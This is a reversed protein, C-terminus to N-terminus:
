RSYTWSSPETTQTDLRARLPWGNMHQGREITSLKSELWVFPKLLVSIKILCYLVHEPCVKKKRGKKREFRCHFSSLHFITGSSIKILCYVFCTRPLGKKSLSLVFIIIFWINKWVSWAKWQSVTFALYIYYRWKYVRLQRKTEKFFPSVGFIQVRKSRRM